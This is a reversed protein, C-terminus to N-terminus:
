IILPLMEILFSGGGMSVQLKSEERLLPRPCCDARWDDQVLAHDYYQGAAAESQGLLGPTGLSNRDDFVLEKEGGDM